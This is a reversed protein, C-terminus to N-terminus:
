TKSQSRRMHSRLGALSKPSASNNLSSPALSPAEARPTKELEKAQVVDSVACQM